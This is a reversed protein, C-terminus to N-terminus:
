IHSLPWIAKLTAFEDETMCAIPVFTKNNYLLKKGQAVCTRKASELTEFVADQRAQELRQALAEQQPTRSLASPKGSSSDFPTTCGVLVLVLLTTAMLTM